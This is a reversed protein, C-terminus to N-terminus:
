FCCSKEPEDLVSVVALEQELVPPNLSDRLPASVEVPALVPRSFWSCSVFVLPREARHPCTQFNFVGPPSTQLPDWVETLKIELLEGLLGQPFNVEWARLVFKPYSNGYWLPLPFSANQFRGM